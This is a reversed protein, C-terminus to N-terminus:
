CRCGWSLFRRSDPSCLPSYAAAPPRPGRSREAPSRVAGVQLPPRPDRAGARGWLARLNDPATVVRLSDSSAAPMWCPSREAGSLVRPWSREWSRRVTPLGQQRKGTTRLAGQAPLVCSGSTYKGKIQSFRAAPKGAGALGSSGSGLCGAPSGPALRASGAEPDSEGRAQGERGAPGM